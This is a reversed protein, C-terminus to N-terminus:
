TKAESLFSEIEASSVACGAYKVAYLAAELAQRSKPLERAILSREFALAVLEVSRVINLGSFMKKLERSNKENVSARKGRRREILQKLQGPNEIITRTTREDIVLLQSGLQKTLALAETEGRQILKIPKGKISLLHNAKEGIEGALASHEADLTKVKLWGERVAKQIRIANLEFRKIKLPREVVEFFVSKPVVFLANSQEKLEKLSNILCSQSLSILSSSDFVAIM